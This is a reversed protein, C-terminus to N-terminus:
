FGRYINFGTRRGMRQLQGPETALVAQARSRAEKANIEGVARTLKAEFMTLMDSDRLLPAAECLTAYLYADPSDTLLSNTPASDSLAFKGLMRLTVAYAQDCPREFALDAGDITWALPLGPITSVDIVAPDVFRLEQREVAGSPLIWVNLAEAYNSPLAIIRSGGTSTLSVDSEALRMRLVRNLRAEGLQILGPINATQDSRILYTAVAAQLGTYDSLDM